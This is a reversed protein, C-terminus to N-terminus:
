IQADLAKALKEGLDTAQELVKRKEKVKGKAFVGYVPLERIVDYGLDELPRSMADLTYGMDGKPEQEWIGIVAAKRGQGALRSSWKGPRPTDFEYFCYLRDIFAKVWATVNYNHTPSVLILGQSKLVAPYIVSMGDTHGTCIKDKRCRECGICPQYQLERLHVATVPLGCRQVGTLAHKLLTDSNGGKRTSGGIGVIQPEPCTTRAFTRVWDKLTEM